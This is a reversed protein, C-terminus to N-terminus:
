KESLHVRRFIDGWVKTAKATVFQTRVKQNLNLSFLQYIVDDKLLQLVRDTYEGVNNYENILFGNQGHDIVDTMDGVNSAIVPVGCAAAQIITRPFGETESTLIFIRGSNFFDNLQDDPIYGLININESLKLKIVLKKINELEPGAGAIAAKIEPMKEKLSSIIHVFVEVHKENSIRGLSILEYKKITEIKRGYHSFDLTNPLVSIKKASIGKSILFNKSNNGTVTISSANKLIWLTLKMRSGKRLKTYAPNGIISVVSPVKLIKGACVALLGHPIEYIGVILKPKLNKRKVIQVLRILQILFPIRKFEPLIYNVKIDKLSASDRFVTVKDVSPTESLQSIFNFADMFGCKLILFIQM